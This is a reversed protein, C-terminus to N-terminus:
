GLAGGLRTKVDAEGMGGGGGGSCGGGGGGVVTAVMFLLLAMKGGLIMEGMDHM